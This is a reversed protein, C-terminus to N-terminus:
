RTMGRGVSQLGHVNGRGVDLGALGDHAQKGGHGAGLLDALVELTERLELEAASPGEPVPAPAPAPEPVPTAPFEGFGSGASQFEEAAATPLSPEPKPQMLMWGLGGIMLIAASGLLAAFLSPHAPAKRNGTSAEIAKLRTALDDPDSSM